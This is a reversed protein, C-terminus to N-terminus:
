DIAKKVEKLPGVELLRINEKKIAIKGANALEDISQSSPLGNSNSIIVVTIKHQSTLQLRKIIKLFSGLISLANLDVHDM